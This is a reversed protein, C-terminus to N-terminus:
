TKKRLQLKGEIYLVRSFAIVLLYAMGIVSALGIKLSTAIIGPILIILLIVLRRPENIRDFKLNAYYLIVIFAYWYKM